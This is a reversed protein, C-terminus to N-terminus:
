PKKWYSEQRFQCGQVLKFTVERGNPNSGPNTWNKAKVIKIRGPELALYLRAKELSRQGGLGFDSGPNKQIAIVAIGNNLKDFIEKIWGGIIFFNDHIELFDIINVDDPKIVDAFNSSREKATFKWSDLPADFKSLRDRFEISGMESSFYYIKHKNQNLRVFNLLFATKGANSEGAIVIINKPLTRVLSEIEFPWHIDLADTSASLFDIPEAENDVRRYCGSKDGYKEVLGEKRLRHMIVHANRREESTLIQLSQYADTLNIYGDQLTVWRRLEDALNRERREARKLASQMKTEIWKKDTDEGWSVILMELVQEIENDPMGGKVLCNATHFLDNDRRGHMFMNYPETLNQLPKYADKRQEIYLSNILINSVAEPMPQLAAEELNLGDQWSYYKGEANRSPPAIVYGGEGRFDVGPLVGAGITLKTDSPFLFYLHWGGRPTKAIPIVISDPLLESIRDFGEQTDCDIVFIGSISGTVIGIMANPWKSWWSRIEDPGAKRKQFEQWPIFPKKDPRVPIISLGHKESYALAATLVDNTRM